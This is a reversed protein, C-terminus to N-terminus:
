YSLMDSAPGSVLVMVNLGQPLFNLKLQDRSVAYGNETM